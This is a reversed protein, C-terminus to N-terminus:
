DVKIYRWKKTDPKKNKGNLRFRTETIPEKIRDTAEDVWIINLGNGSFSAEGFMEERLYTPHTEKKKDTNNRYARILFSARYEKEENEFTVDVGSNHPHLSGEKPFYPVDKGHHYMNYDQMWEPDDKREGYLYFEIDLPYIKTKGNILFYGGYFVVIAIKNFLESISDFTALRTQQTSFKVDFEKFANELLTSM